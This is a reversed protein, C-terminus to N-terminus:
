GPLRAEDAANPCALPGLQTWLCPLAGRCPPGPPVTLVCRSGAFCLAKFDARLVTHQLAGPLEDILGRPPGERQTAPRRGMAAATGDSMLGLLWTGAELWYPLCAEITSAPLAAIHWPKPLLDLM